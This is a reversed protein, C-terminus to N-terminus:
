CISNGKVGFCGIAYGAMLDLFVKSGTGMSSSFIAYDIGAGTIFALSNIMARRTTSSGKESYLSATQNNWILTWTRVEPARNDPVVEGKLELTRTSGSAGETGETTHATPLEMVVTCLRWPSYFISVSVPTEDVHLIEKMTGIYASTYRTLCRSKEMSFLLEKNLSDAFIDVQVKESEPYYTRKPEVKMTMMTSACGSLLALMPFILVMKLISLLRNM